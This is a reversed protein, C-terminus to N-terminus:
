FGGKFMSDLWQAFNEGSKEACEHFFELTEDDLVMPYTITIM